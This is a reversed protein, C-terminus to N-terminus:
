RRGSGSRLRRRHLGCDLLRRVARGAGVRLKRPTHSLWARLLLPATAMALLVPPFASSRPSDRHLPPLSSAGSAARADRLLSTLEIDIASTAYVGVQRVAIAVRNALEYAGAATPGVTFAIVIKDTQYNVLDMLRVIQNKTSYALFARAQGLAPVPLLAAPGRRSDRNRRGRGRFGGGAGANALAYGPLRAGSDRDFGRQRHLQDRCRDRHRCKPGGHSSQRSPFATIVSTLM